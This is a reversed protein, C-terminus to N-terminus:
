QPNDPRNDPGDPDKPESSTPEKPESADPEKAPPDSTTPDSSAATTTASASAERQREADKAAAIAADREQKQKEARDADQQAAQAKLLAETMISDSSPMKPSQAAVAMSTGILAGALPLALYSSMNDGKDLNGLSCLMLWLAM